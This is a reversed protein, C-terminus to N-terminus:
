LVGKKGENTELLHMGPYVQPRNYYNKSRRCLSLHGATKTTQEFLMQRYMIYSM